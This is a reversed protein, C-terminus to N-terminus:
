KLYAIAKAAWDPGLKDIREISTNCRYCLLGRVKGTDHCHDVHLRKNLCDPETASCLKCTGGQEDLMRYYDDLGIGYKWKLMQDRQNRKRKEPDQRARSEKTQKSRCDICVSHLIRKKKNAIKSGMEDAPKVTECHSCKKTVGKFQPFRETTKKYSLSRAMASITYFNYVM